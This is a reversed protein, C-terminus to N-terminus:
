GQKIDKFYSIAVPKFGLSGLFRDLSKGGAPSKDSMGMKAIGMDALANEAYEVLKLALGGGRCEPTLFFADEKAMTDGAHHMDPGIFFMLDGVIEYDEVRRVTFVVFAGLKEYEAFRDYDPRMPDDRYLAETEEWHEAWMKTIGERIHWIPERGLFYGKYEVPKPGIYMPHSTDIQEAPNNM